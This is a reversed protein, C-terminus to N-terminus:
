RYNPRLLVSYVTVGTTLCGVAVGGSLLLWSVLKLKWPRDESSQQQQRRETDEVMRLGILGPVCFGLVSSATGGLLGFVVSINPLILALGLVLGTLFLTTLVHLRLDFVDDEDEYYDSDSLSSANNGRAISITGTHVPRGELSFHLIHNTDASFLQEVALYEQENLPDHAINQLQLNPERSEQDMEEDDLLAATLGENPVLVRRDLTSSAAAPNSRAAAMSLFITPEGHRYRYKAIMGLLTVRAPFINLPFALIVAVAMAATAAQMMPGADVYCSLMNAQVHSGFDALTILSVCGYLTACIGVALLTVIGMLKSKEAAEDDDRQTTSGPMRQSPSSSPVTLEQFISCVNAQCSFAFLVIPCATLVSVIGGAPWLFDALRVTTTADTDNDNDQANTENQNDLSWHWDFSNQAEFLMETANEDPTPTTLHFHEMWHMFVAVVLIMIASISFCSACQLSQVRRLLSLPLMATAYVLLLTPTRSCGTSCGLLLGAQQLIDGVAIVYAVACGACFILLCAEVATRVSPAVAIQALREYTDCKYYVSARVLIHVSAVTAAAAGVLLAGGVM